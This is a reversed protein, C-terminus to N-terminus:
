CLPEKRHAAPPAASGAAKVISDADVILAIRGDGLITAAAGGPVKRYNTELSKIVVQRQDIIHDVMLVCRRNDDAEILMLVQDDTNAPAARFGFHAGLDIVPVTQGRHELLTHGHGIQHLRTTDPQLAQLITSIPVIMVQGAVSVLMGDLVALTLPLSILFRTGQGPVSRISVRGGIGNIESRVVDLGVGRGSLESVEERSSFGPLFLLNEIESASMDGGPAVLGRTEALARVKDHAIGGGDDTIEIQVRGSKHAFSLTVSGIEPKGAARRDEPTELGHDIANRIMHMLPDGLREIVTKDLETTEGVTVFRIRKGATAATERAVRSMRQCMQKVPQARIAMVSEQIDRALVNLGELAGLVGSDAPLQVDAISQWLMAEKIVLEGVLNIMRDVRDSAVRLTPSAAVQQAAGPARGEPASPPTASLNAAAAQGQPAELDPDAAAIGGETGTALIDALSPTAAGDELPAEDRARPAIEEVELQAMDAVFEFVELIDDVTGDFALTGQWQLRCDLPDLAGLPPVDELAATVSFDGLRSLARFLLLPENGTAFIQPDAQFAIRFRRPDAQSVEPLGAISITAPEFDIPDERSAKGAGPTAEALRENLGDPAPRAGLKGHGADAVLDSLHDGCDRLLMRLSDDIEIQGSRLGDLLSEFRHAFDVLDSLDFAGAGGKISHVARFVANLTEADQAQADILEFGDNLAELLEECEEFFAKRFEENQGVSM